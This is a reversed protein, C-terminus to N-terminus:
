DALTFGKIAGSYEQDLVCEAAVLDVAPKITKVFSVFDRNGSGQPLWKKRVVYLCRM